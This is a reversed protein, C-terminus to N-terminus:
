LYSREGKILILIEGQGCKQEKYFDEVMWVHFKNDCCYYRHRSPYPPELLILPEEEKDTIGAFIFLGNDPINKYKGLAELIRKIVRQVNKRNIRDKINDATCFEKELMKM